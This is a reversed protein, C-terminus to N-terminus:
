QEHARGEVLQRNDVGERQSWKDLYHVYFAETLSEPKGTHARQRRQIKLVNEAILARKRWHALEADDRRQQLRRAGAWVMLMFTTDLTAM